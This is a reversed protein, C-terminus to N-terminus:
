WLVNLVSHVIVNVKLSEALIGVNIREEAVLRPVDIPRRGHHIRRHSPPFAHLEITLALTWTYILCFM